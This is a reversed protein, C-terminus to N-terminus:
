RRRAGILLGGIALLSLTAPEPISVWGSGQDDPGIGGVHAATPFAGQHGDLESLFNFSDATLTSIGTITYKVAEAVGFREDGGDPNGFFVQVDFFGDGNAMFANVGTNITPDTFMGTKVPESFILSNPDLDPDPDLNFLWEFVFENDTLNTAELTLDVSGPTDYDRDDFTATLWPPTGEPAVASSFEISLPYTVLGAQASSSILFCVTLVAVAYMGVRRWLCHAEKPTQAHYAFM